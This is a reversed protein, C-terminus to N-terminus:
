REQPGRPTDPDHRATVEVQVTREFTLAIETLTWGKMLRRLSESLLWNLWTSPNVGAVSFRRTEIEKSAM